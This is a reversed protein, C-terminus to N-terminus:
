MAHIIGYAFFIRGNQEHYNWEWEMTERENAEIWQKGAGMPYRSVLAMKQHRRDWVGSLEVKKIVLMEKSTANEMRTDHWEVIDSVFLLIFFSVPRKAKAFEQFLIYKKIPGFFIFIIDWKKLAM